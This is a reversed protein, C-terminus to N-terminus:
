SETWAFHCAGEEAHLALCICYPCIYINGPARTTRIAPLPSSLLGCRWAGGGLCVPHTAATSSLVRCAARMLRMATLPPMPTHSSPLARPALPQSGRASSLWGRTAHRAPVVRMRVAVVTRQMGGRPCGGAARRMVGARDRPSSLGSRMRMCDQSLCTPATHHPRLSSHTSSRCTSDTWARLGVQGGFARAVVVITTAVVVVARTGHRMASLGSHQPQPQHHALSNNEQLSTTIILEHQRCTTTGKTHARCVPM